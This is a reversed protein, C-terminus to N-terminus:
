TGGHLSTSSSDDLQRTARLLRIARLLRRRRASFWIAGAFGIFTLSFKSFLELDSVEVAPKYADVLVLYVGVLGVLCALITGAAMWSRNRNYLYIYLETNVVKRVHERLEQDTM